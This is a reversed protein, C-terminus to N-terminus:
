CPPSSAIGDVDNSMEICFLNESIVLLLLLLILSDVRWKKQNWDRIKVSQEEDNRLTKSPAGEQM